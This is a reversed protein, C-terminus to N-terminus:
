CFVTVNDSTIARRCSHVLSLVSMVNVTVLGRSTALMLLLGSASAALGEVLEGGSDGQRERDRYEARGARGEMM